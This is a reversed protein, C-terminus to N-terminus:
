TIQKKKRYYIQIYPLAGNKQLYQLKLDAVKAFEKKSELELKEQVTQNPQRNHGPQLFVDCATLPTLICELVTAPLREWPFGIGYVVVEVDM